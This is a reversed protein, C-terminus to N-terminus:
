KLAYISQKKIDRTLNILEQERHVEFLQENITNLKNKRAEYFANYLCGSLWEELENKGSNLLRENNIFVIKESELYSM